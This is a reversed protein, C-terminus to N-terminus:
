PWQLADYAAASAASSAQIECTANTRHKLADGAKIEQSVKAAVVPQAVEVDDEQVVHQERAERGGREDLRDGPRYLPLENTGETLRRENFM